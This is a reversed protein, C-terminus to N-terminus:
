TLPLQRKCNDNCNHCLPYIPPLGGRTWVFPTFTRNLTMQRKSEWYFVEICLPLEANLRTYLMSQLLLGFGALDDIGDLPM